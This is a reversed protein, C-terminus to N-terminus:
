VPLIADRQKGVLVEQVRPGMAGLSSCSSSSRPGVPHVRSSHM